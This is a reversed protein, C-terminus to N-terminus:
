WTATNIYSGLASIVGRFTKVMSGIKLLATQDSEHLRKLAIDHLCMYILAMKVLAFLNVIVEKHPM